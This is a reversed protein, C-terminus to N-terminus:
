TLQAWYHLVVAKRYGSQYVDCREQEKPERFVFGTEFSSSRQVWVPVGLVARTGNTRKDVFDIEFNGSKQVWVSVRRAARTGKNMQSEVPLTLKLVAAERYGSQYVDRM